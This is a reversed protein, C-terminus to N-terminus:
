VPLTVIVATGRGPESTLTVHGGLSEARQYISNIGRRGSQRLEERRLGDSDFGCGNDSIELDVGRDTYAATVKIEDAGGHRVANSIAEQFIRFVALTTAERMDKCQEDVYIEITIDYQTRARSAAEELAAELGLSIWPPVLADCIGRLDSVLSETLDEASKLSGGTTGKIEAIQIKQMLAAAVQIPGDHIDRAIRAREDEQARVLDDLYRDELERKEIMREGLARLATELSATEKTAIALANRPHIDPLDTGWSNSEVAEALDRLPVIVSARLVVLGGLSIVMAAIGAAALKVVAADSPGSWSEMTVAAAAYIGPTATPVICATAVTGDPEIKGSVVEGASIGARVAEGFMSRLVESGDSGAVFRGSPTIFAAMGTVFKTDDALRGSADSGHDSLLALFERARDISGENWREAAYVALSRVHRSAREAADSRIAVVAAASQWIMILIPVLVVAFMLTLLRRGGYQKM